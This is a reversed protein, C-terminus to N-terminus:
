IKCVSRISFFAPWTADGLGTGPLTTGLASDLNTSLGCVDHM